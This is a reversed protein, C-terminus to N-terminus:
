GVAFGAAGGPVASVIGVQMARAVVHARSTCHLKGLINSVHRKAGHVSIGLNLAIQKNSLGGVILKLVDQERATLHAATAGVGVGSTAHEMVVEAVARPMPVEGSVVRHLTDELAVQTLEATIAYGDARIAVAAALTAPELSTILVVLPGVHRLTRFSEATPAPHLRAAAVVVDIDPNQGALAEGDAVSTVSWVGGVSPSGTLMEVLGRRVVEQQEIVLVGLGGGM